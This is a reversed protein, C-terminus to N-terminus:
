GLTAGYVPCRGAPASERADVQHQKKGAAPRGRTFSASVPPTLLGACDADAQQGLSILCVRRWLFTPELLVAHMTIKALDQSDCHTDRWRPGPLPSHPTVRKGPWCTSTTRLSTSLGPSINRHLTPVRAGDPWERVPAAPRPSRPSPACSRGSRPNRPRRRGPRASRAASLSASCDPLDDVRSIREAHGLLLLERCQQARRMPSGSRATARVGRRGTRTSGNGLTGANVGLDRAIVAIPKKTGKVIRVAGERFEPDFKRRIEPM